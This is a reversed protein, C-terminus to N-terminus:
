KNTEISNIIIWAISGSKTSIKIECDKWDKLYGFKRFVDILEKKLQIIESDMLSNRDTLLAYHNTM